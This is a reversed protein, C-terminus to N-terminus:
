LYNDILFLLKETSKELSFNELVTDRANKGIRERLAINKILLELKKIWEKENKALFGNKGDKIIHKIEGVPSSVTPLGCSMYELLKIPMAARHLLNDPSPMLGIDIKSLEDPVESPDIWGTTKTVFNRKNVSEITNRDIDGIIKLEIVYKISLKELPKCIIKLNEFLSHGLWGLITIKRRRFKKMKFRETDVVTPLIHTNKNVTKSFEKLFHSCVLAMDCERLMRKIKKRADPFYDDIQFIVKKGFLKCM